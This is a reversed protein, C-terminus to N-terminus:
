RTQLKIPIPIEDIKEIPIMPGRWGLRTSNSFQSWHVVKDTVREMDLISDDKGRPQLAGEELPFWHNSAYEIHFEFNSGWGSSEEVWDETGGDESVFGDGKLGEKRTFKFYTVNKLLESAKIEKEPWVGGKKNFFDICHEVNECVNRDLCLFLRTEGVPLDLVNQITLHLHETKAEWAEISNYADM